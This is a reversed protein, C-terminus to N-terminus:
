NFGSSRIAEVSEASQAQIPISLEVVSEAFVTKNQLTLPHTIREEEEGPRVLVNLILEGAPTQIRCMQDHAYTAVINLIACVFPELQLVVNMHPGMEGKSVVLQWDLQRLFMLRAKGIDEETIPIEGVSENLRAIAQATPNAKHSPEGLCFLYHVLAGLESHTSQPVSEIATNM